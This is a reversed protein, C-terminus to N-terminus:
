RQKAFRIVGTDAVTRDFVTFYNTILPLGVITQNPWNPLQSLLKFCAKGKEPTNLQWYHTPPCVLEVPENNEGKFTFTIEPWDALNLENADIGKYQQKANSFPNLLSEFNANVENLDKIIQEYLDHTLVTFSAGTDIIANTFYAHVDKDALPAASIPTNNGVQVSVLEVNYYVDHLVKITKFTGQYRDTQSEGGGLTLVGQNLPDQKLQAVQNPDATVVNIGESAVNVSSRKAYFSFRNEVIHQQAIQTFVPSIDHEPYQWLFSKFAKLDIFNPPTSTTSTQAEKGINFPWPYSLASNAKDPTNNANHFYDSLDFSKNLHHYALGLIGDADGFTSTPEAEVIAIATDAVKTKEKLDHAHDLFHIQSHIVAGAWGGIGYNVEQVVPTAILSTDKEPQYAKPEVVLTSSGTDVILNVPSQESGIYLSATYDGKAYVNTLPLDIINM